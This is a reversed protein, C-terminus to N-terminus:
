CFMRKRPVGEKEDKSLQPSLLRHGRSYRGPSVAVSSDRERLVPPPPAHLAAHYQIPAAAYDETPPSLIRRPSLSAGEQPHSQPDSPAGSWPAPPLPVAIAATPLYTNSPGKTVFLAPQTYHTVFPTVTSGHGTSFFATMNPAAPFTPVSSDAVLPPPMSESIRRPGNREAATAAVMRAEGGFDAMRSQVHRPTEFSRDPPALSGDPSVAYGGTGSPVLTGASLLLRKFHSPELTPSPALSTAAYPQNRRYAAGPSVAVQAVFPSNNSEQPVIQPLDNAKAPRSPLPSKPTPPATTTASAPKTPGAKSSGATSGLRNVVVVKKVMKKLAGVPAAPPQKAKTAGKAKRRTAVESSASSSSSSSSRSSTSPTPKRTTKKPPLPPEPPTPPLPPAPPRFSATSLTNSKGALYTELPSLPSFMGLVDGVLPRPPMDPTQPPSPAPPSPEPSRTTRNSHQRQRAREFDIIVANVDSASLLAQYLLQDEASPDLM